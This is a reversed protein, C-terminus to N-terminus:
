SRGTYHGAFPDGFRSVLHVAMLRVEEPSLESVRQRNADLLARVEAPARPDDPYPLPLDLLDLWTTLRSLWDRRCHQIYADRLGENKWGRGFLVGLTKPLLNESESPYLARWALILKRWPHKGTDAEGKLPPQERLALHLARYQRKLNFASDARPSYAKKRKKRQPRQPGSQVGRAHNVLSVYRALSACVFEAQGQYCYKDGEGDGFLVEDVETRSRADDLDEEFGKRIEARDEPPVPVPLEHKRELASWIRGDQQEAYEALDARM